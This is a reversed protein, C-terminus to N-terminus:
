EDDRRLVSGCGPCRARTTPIGCGPCRVPEPEDAGRRARLKGPVTVAAPIRSPNPSISPAVNQRVEGRVARAVVSDGLPEGCELCLDAGEEVTAQCGPCNMCSYDIM